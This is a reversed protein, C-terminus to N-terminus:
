KNNSDNIGFLEILFSKIDILVDRGSDEGGQFFLLEESNLIEFSDISGKNITNQM